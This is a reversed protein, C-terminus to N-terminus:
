LKGLEAVLDRCDQLDPWLVRSAREPALLEAPRLRPSLANTPAYARQETPLL